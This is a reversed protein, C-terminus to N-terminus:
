GGLGPGSFQDPLQRQRQRRNDGVDDRDLDTRARIGLSRGISELLASSPSPRCEPRSISRLRRHGDFRRHLRHSRQACPLEQPNNAGIHPSGPSNPTVGDAGLDIGLRGNGFISNSLIANGPCYDPLEPSGVAVGAGQNFAITNAAGAVTGGITNDQTNFFLDIGDSNNPIPQTGTIDTGVLNGEMLNYSASNFVLVIGDGSNGSLVNGSGPTTGGITNNNGNIDVGNGDNVLAGEGTADTGVLNGQIVNSYCGGDIKIADGGNGSVLNGAGSQAGGVTNGWSNNEFELGMGNSLRNTGTADTGIYNGAILNGTAGSGTIQIGENNGSIINRADPTLGGITNGGVNNVIM